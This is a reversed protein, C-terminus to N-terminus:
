EHVNIHFEHSRVFCIFATNLRCCGVVADNECWNTDIVESVHVVYLRKCVLVGSRGIELKDKACQRHDDAFGSRCEEAWNFADNMMFVKVTDFDFEGM